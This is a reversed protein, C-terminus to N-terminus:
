IRSIIISACLSFSFYLFLFMCVLLLLYVLHFVICVFYLFFDANNTQWQPRIHRSLLCSPCICESSCAAVLSCQLRKGSNSLVSTQRPKETKVELCVTYATTIRGNTWRDTM